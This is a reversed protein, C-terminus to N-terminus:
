LSQYGVFVWCSSIAMIGLLSYVIYQSIFQLLTIISSHNRNPKNPVNMDWTRKGWTLTLRKRKDHAAYTIGADEGKWKREWCKKKKKFWNALNKQVKLFPCISFLITAFFFTTTSLPLIFRILLKIRKDVEKDDKKM